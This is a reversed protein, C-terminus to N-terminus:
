LTTTLPSTSHLSLLPVTTGQLELMSAPNVAPVFTPMPFATSVISSYLLLLKYNWLLLTLTGADWHRSRVQRGGRFHIPPSLLLMRRRGGQGHAGDGYCLRGSESAPRGPASAVATM